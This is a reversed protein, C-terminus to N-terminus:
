WKGDKQLLMIAMSIVDNPPWSNITFGTKGKAYTDDCGDAVEVMRWKKLGEACVNCSSAGGIFLKASNIWDATELYDKPVIVKLQNTLDTWERADNPGALVIVKLKYHIQFTLLIRIWEDVDRVSRRHPMHFTIDLERTQPATLWVEEHNCEMGFHVAYRKQISCNGPWVPGNWEPFCEPNFDDEAQHLDHTIDIDGFRPPPECMGAKTIYEQYEILPLLSRLMKENWGPTHFLSLYFEGGGLKKVTYLSYISDGLRGGIHFRRTAFGRPGTTIKAGSM